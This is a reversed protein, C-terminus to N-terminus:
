RSPRSREKFFQLLSEHKFILEHVGVVRSIGVGGGVQGWKQLKDEGKKLALDEQMKMPAGLCCM